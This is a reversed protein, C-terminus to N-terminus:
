VSKGLNAEGNRDVKKTRAHFKVRYSVKETGFLSNTDEKSRVTM